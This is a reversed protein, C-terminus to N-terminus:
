RRRVGCGAGDIDVVNSYTNPAITNGGSDAAIGYAADNIVNNIVTNGTGVCDFDIGAGNDDAGENNMLFNSEVANGTGSVVIAEDTLLVRNLTATNSNGFLWIGVGFNEITNNTITADSEVYIGTQASVGPPQLHTILINDNVIGGSFLVIGNPVASGTFSNSAVIVNSTITITGSAYVGSSDFDHMSNGAVLVSAPSLDSDIYVSTGLYNGTQNYIAMQRVSGSASQYYVGALASDAPVGNHAGNVEINSINVGSAPGQVLVQYYVGNSTKTLGGRPVTIAPNAQTGSQVGKLTLPQTITVQEPYTGPCVLITSGSPVASVAESITSYGQLNPQCTGVQVTKAFTAPALLLV